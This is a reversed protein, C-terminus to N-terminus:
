SSKLQAITVNTYVMAIGQKDVITPVESGTPLPEDITTNTFIPTITWAAFGIAIAAIVVIVILIIKKLTYSGV